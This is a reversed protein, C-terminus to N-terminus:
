ECSIFCCDAGFNVRSFFVRGGNRGHAPSQRRGGYKGGGGKGHGQRGCSPDPNDARFRLVFGWMMMMPDPIPVGSRSIVAGGLFCVFNQMVAALYDFNHNHSIRISSFYSWGQCPLIWM